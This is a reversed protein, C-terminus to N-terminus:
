DIVETFATESCSILSIQEIYSQLAALSLSM